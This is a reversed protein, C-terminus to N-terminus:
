GETNRRERRERKWPKICPPSGPIDGRVYKGGQIKKM